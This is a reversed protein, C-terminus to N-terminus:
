TLSILTTVLRAMWVKSHTGAITMFAWSWGRTNSKETRTFYSPEWPAWKRASLLEVMAELWEPAIVSTDDNLFLLLPSECQRAATNNILSYNFPKNRWNIYRLLGSDSRFGRVLNEIASSRSNDIVVVEYNKFKTKDVLSRLNNTLVDTKGGSAIIISVRANEPIPYRARWRGVINAPEVRMERGSRECYQSLAKQAADM